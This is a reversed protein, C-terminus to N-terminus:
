KSLRPAFRGTRDIYRQYEVGFERELEAEERPVIFTAVAIWAILAMVLMSWSAAMISLSVFVISAVTYLPHRIWRYPGDTVLEHGKKTLYIWSVNKGISTMMCYLM